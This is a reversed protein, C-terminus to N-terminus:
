LWLSARIFEADFGFFFIYAAAATWFAAAILPLPRRLSRMQLTVILLMVFMEFTGREGNGVNVWISEFNLCLAISAYVLAAAAPASWATLAGVVALGAGCMLLLPYVIAARNLGGGDPVYQGHAVASWLHAIGAFPAGFDGPHYFFVSPGWDAILMVGVYARWLLMPAVVCVLFVARNRLPLTTLAFAAIAIVFFIGTERVLLSAALLVAAWTLSRRRVAIYGGILLAAALPEPLGNQLSQWFGPVVVIALGWLPSQGIDAALIAILAACLVISGFVVAFMTAPYFRWRDFSLVKALLPYGIRDLRYPGADIFQRYTAPHDRFARVFPDYMQFYVFQGDYGGGENFALTRRIDDRTNLLPDRGFMARSVHLVGSINGGYAEDVRHAIVAGYCITVVAVAVGGLAVITRRESRDWASASALALWIQPTALVVVCWFFGHASILLLYPSVFPSLVVLVFLLALIVSAARHIAVLHFRNPLAGPALFLLVLLVVIPAVATGRVGAFGAAGAPVIVLDYAQTAGHHTAFELYELAWPGAGDDASLTTQTTGNWGAPSACDVRRTSRGSVSARCVVRDDLRVTFERAGDSENHIRTIVAAPGAINKQESVPAPPVAVIGAIAPLPAQVVKARVSTFSTFVRTGLVLCACAAVLLRLIRSTV